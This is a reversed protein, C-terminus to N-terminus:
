CSSPNRLKLWCIIVSFVNNITSNLLFDLEKPSAFDPFGPIFGYFHSRHLLDLYDELEKSTPPMWNALAEFANQLDSLTDIRTIGPAMLYWPAGLVWSPKGVRLAELGASGTITAVAQCKSIIKSSPVETKVFCVNPINQLNKYFGIPRPGFGTQDPHEKIVVKWGEPLKSAIFRVAEFQEEFHGGSPSIALEPEVHLPFFVFEEPFEALKKTAWYEITTRFRSIKRFVREKMSTRKSTNIASNKDEFQGVLEHNEASEDLNSNSESVLGLFDNALRNGFNLPEKFKSSGKIRCAVAFDSVEDVKEVVNFAFTHINFTHYLILTPIGRSICLNYIIFDYVEHPVNAFVVSDIQNEALYKSWFAAERFFYSRRKSIDNRQWIRFGDVRDLMRLTAGEFSKIEHYLDKDIVSQKVDETVDLGSEHPNGRVLFSTFVQPYAPTESGTGFVEYNGENCLNEIIPSSWKDIGIGVILVRLPTTRAGDTSNMARVKSRELSAKKTVSEGFEM